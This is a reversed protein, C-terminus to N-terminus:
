WKADSLKDNRADSELSIQSLISVNGCVHM